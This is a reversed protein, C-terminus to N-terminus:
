IAAGKFSRKEIITGKLKSPVIVRRKWVRELIKACDKVPGDIKFRSPQPSRPPDTEAERGTGEFVVGRSVVVWTCAPPLSSYNCHCHYAARMPFRITTKGCKEVREEDDM